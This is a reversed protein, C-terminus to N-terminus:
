YNYYRYTTDKPTLEVWGDHRVADIMRQGCNVKIFTHELQIIVDEMEEDSMNNANKISEKIDLAVKKQQECDCAYVLTKTPHDCSVLLTSIILILSISNTAARVRNRVQYFGLALLLLMLGMFWFKYSNWFTGFNSVPNATQNLISFKAVFSRYVHGQYSKLDGRELYFDNSNFITTDISGNMYTIEVTSTAFVSTTFLLLFALLLKKMNKTKIFHM